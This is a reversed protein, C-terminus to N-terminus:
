NDLRKYVVPMLVLVIGLLLIYTIVENTDGTQPNKTEKTKEPNELQGPEIPIKSIDLHNNFAVSQTQNEVVIGKAGTSTVVYEENNIEIVEYKTGVPM